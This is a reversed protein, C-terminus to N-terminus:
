SKHCAEQGSGRVTRLLNRQAPQKVPEVQISSTQVLQTWPPPLRNSASTTLAPALNISSRLVENWQGYWVLSEKVQIM